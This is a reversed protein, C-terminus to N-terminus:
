FFSSRFNERGKAKLGDGGQSARYHILSDGWLLVRSLIPTSPSSLPPFLGQKEPAESNDENFTSKSIRHHIKLIPVEIFLLM